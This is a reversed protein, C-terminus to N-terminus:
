SVDAECLGRLMAETDTYLIFTNGRVKDMFAAQNSSFLILDHQQQHESWLLGVLATRIFWLAHGAGDMLALLLMLRVVRWM